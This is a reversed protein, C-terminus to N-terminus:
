AGAADAPAAGVRAYTDLAEGFTSPIDRDTRDYYTQLQLDSSASFRRVWQAIANGGSLNVDDANM